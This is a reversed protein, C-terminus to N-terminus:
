NCSGAPAESDAEPTELEQDCAEPAEKFAGCIAEKYGKSSRNGSFKVGNIMLAPSGSIGYEDTLEVEKEAYALKKDEFCSQVSSSKVGVKEAAGSWCDEVDEYTCDQNVQDVFDWYKDKQNNYVCLERIDQNAESVGHMSCYKSEEDICYDPGGEKYNDYFIYHPEVEIADGLLDVVPRMLDEAQNGYPCFSMTFLEVEPEETQPIEETQQATQQDKDGAVDQNMDIGSTFFLSQDTTMYSIFERGDVDLKIKYLDNDKTVEKIEFADERGQMLNKAIFEQAVGKAKATGGGSQLPNSTFGQSLVSAGLLLVLIITIKGKDM